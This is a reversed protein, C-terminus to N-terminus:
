YFLLDRLCFPSYGAHLSLGFSLPVHAIVFTLSTKIIAISDAQLEAAGRIQDLGLTVSIWSACSLYSHMFSVLRM